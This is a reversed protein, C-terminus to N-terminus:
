IFFQPPRTYFGGGKENKTKVEWLFYVVGIKGKCNRYPRPISSCATFRLFKRQVEPAKGGECLPRCCSSFQIHVFWHSVTHAGHGLECQQQRQQEDQRVGRQPIQRDPRQHQ